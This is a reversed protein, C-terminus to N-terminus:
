NRSAMKLKQLGLICSHTRVGELGLGGFFKVTFLNFCAIFVKNKIKAGTFFIRSSINFIIYIIKRSLQVMVFHAADHSFRIKGLLVHFCLLLDAKCYGRLQDTNKSCPYYM